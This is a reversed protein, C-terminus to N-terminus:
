GHVSKLSDVVQATRKSKAILRLQARFKNNDFDDSSNPLSWLKIDGKQLAPFLQDRRTRKLGSNSAHHSKM